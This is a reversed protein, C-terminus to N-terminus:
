RQKFMAVVHKCAHQTNIEHRAPSYIAPHLKQGSFGASCIKKPQSHKSRSPFALTHLKHQLLIKRSDNHQQSPLEGPLTDGQYKQHSSTGGVNSHRWGRGFVPWYSCVLGVFTGGSPPQFETVQSLKRAKRAVFNRPRCWNM